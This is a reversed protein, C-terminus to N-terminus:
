TREPLPLRGRARLQRQIPPHERRKPHSGTGGPTGWGRQGRIAGRPHCGRGRGPPPHSSVLRIAHQTDAIRLVSGSRARGMPAAPAPLAANAPARTLIPPVSPAPTQTATARDPEQHSLTPLALSMAAATARWGEEGTRNRRLEKTSAQPATVVAARANTSVLMCPVCPLVAHTNLILLRNLFIRNPTWFCKMGYCFM